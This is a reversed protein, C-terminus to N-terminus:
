DEDLKLFKIHDVPGGIAKSCDTCITQELTVSFSSNISQSRQLALFTALSNLM